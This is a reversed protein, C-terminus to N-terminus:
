GAGRREFGVDAKLAAIDRGVTALAHTVGGQSFRIAADQAKLDGDIRPPDFDQAHGVYRISTDYHASWFFPPDEYPRDDGLIMRAAHQGQREAHVWHEVRILAGSRPDPYRALDGVAYVHGASTRLRDDVIVGNDVALGAGQALAVRPKVGTGAIIFDAGLAEGGDLTVRGDEYALVKRGLRFAVGKEEHLSQIWRGAAEGMVRALPIEEPAVVSVELGRHRLAAATELGIFSAGVIVARRAKEAAKIIAGADALSRLLHVQPQDFGPIPPRQPEAGLALILADFALEGGGELTAKRERLDLAAIKTGLRLDVGAGAYWGEPRLPMWEAPAEGALYDKSCNPRDYPADADASVMTIEGDFGHRRLMEAAALGAAGGGAIVVRRPAGEPRRKRAPEPAEAPRRVLITGDREEVSWATVPDIAPAGLAEGTRLCFRAHHWPCRVTEGVILGEALPGQYHSCRAGIAFVRGEVRALLVEDEGVHGVLMAGEALDSAAIGQSLDPGGPKDAQETMPEEM